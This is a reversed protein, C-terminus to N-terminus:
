TGQQLDLPHYSWTKNYILRCCKVEQGVSGSRVRRFSYPRTVGKLVSAWPCKRDWRSDAVWLRRNLLSANGKTSDSWFMKKLMEAKPFSNWRRRRGLVRSTAGPATTSHCSSTWPKPFKLPFLELGPALKVSPLSSSRRRSSSFVSQVKIPSMVSTGPAETAM